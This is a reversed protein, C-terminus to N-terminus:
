VNKGRLKNINSKKISGWRGVVSGVISLTPNEKKIIIDQMNKNASRLIVNDEDYFVFKVMAEDDAIVAGTDGNDPSVSPDVVVIDGEFLGLEIMSDGLVKLAFCGKPVAEEIINYLDGLINEVALLGTGAKVEGIVPLSFLSSKTVQIGRAVGSLLQIFGKKKLANLDYVVGTTTNQGFHTAIEKKTPPISNENIYSIIYDLTKQQKETLKLKTM